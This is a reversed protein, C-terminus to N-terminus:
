SHAALFADTQEDRNGAYFCELVREFVSPSSAVTAFLTMSSQLKLDDPFGMIEAATRGRVSLLAEACAVLRPGLVPHRLYAEAEARSQIAYREAMPSSGLGAVQPFVFWMWHSRKQGDTLERLATAHVGEQAAVFRALNFPDDPTSSM